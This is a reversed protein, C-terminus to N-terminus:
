VASLSAKIASVLVQSSALYKYKKSVERAVLKVQDIPSNPLNFASLADGIDSLSVYDKQMEQLHM